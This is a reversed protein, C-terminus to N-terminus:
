IYLVFKNRTIKAVVYREKAMNNVYTSGIFNL